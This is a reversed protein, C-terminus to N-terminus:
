RDVFAQLRLRHPAPLREASRRPLDTYEESHKHSSNRDIDNSCVCVCMCICKYLFFTVFERAGDQSSKNFLWPDHFKWGFCGNLAAVLEGSIANGSSAWAVVIEFAVAQPSLTPDASRIENVFDSKQSSSMGLYRALRACKKFDTVREAM